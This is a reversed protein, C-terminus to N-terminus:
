YILLFSFLSHQPEIALSWGGDSLMLTHEPIYYRNSKLTNKMEFCM